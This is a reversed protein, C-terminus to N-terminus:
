KKNEKWKKVLLDQHDEEEEALDRFLKQTAPSTVQNVAETYFQRAEAEMRMVEALVKKPKLLPRLWFPRRKLFGKVDHTRIFLVHDGFTQSRLSVLRCAHKIEGEASGALQHIVTEVKFARQRRKTIHLGV